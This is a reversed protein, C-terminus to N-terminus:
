SPMVFDPRVEIDGFPFEFVSSSSDAAIIQCRVVADAANGAIDPTVAFRLERLFRPQQSPELHPQLSRWGIGSERVDPPNL